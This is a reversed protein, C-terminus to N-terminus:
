CTRRRCDDHAASVRLEHLLGSAAAPAHGQHLAALAAVHCGYGPGSGRDGLHGHECAQAWGDEMGPQRAGRAGPRGWWPCREQCVAGQAGRGLTDGACDWLEGLVGPLSASCAVPWSSLSPWRQESCPSPSPRGTGRAEACQGHHGGCFPTPLCIGSDGREQGGDMTRPAAMRGGAMGRAQQERSRGEEKSGRGREGRSGM